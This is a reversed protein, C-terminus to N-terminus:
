ADAPEHREAAARGVDNLSRTTRCRRADDARARDVVGPKLRAFLYAWYSRRNDFEKFGAADIPRAHHDARVAAAERRADHGRIRAARRRRHDDGPRQRDDHENIVTPIAASARNGTLRPELVAVHPEGVRRRRGADLLRGLAPRLGLVPFYSGSVYCAGGSSRRAEFPSTRASCARPAAIGTFVRKRVSSTSSCRIASSRRRLRRRHRVLELRAEARRALNVLRGPAPVPLARLLTQDFLSFIAANAGIGLALSAIAVITVFPAKFLARFALQNIMHM